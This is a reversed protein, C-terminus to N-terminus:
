PGAWRRRVKAAVYSFSYRAWRCRRRRRRRRTQLHSPPPFPQLHPDKQVGRHLLICLATCGQARESLGQSVIVSSLPLTPIFPFDGGNRGGIALHPTHQEQVLITDLIVLIGRVVCLWNTKWCAHTSAQYRKSPPLLGLSGHMFTGFLNIPSINRRDADM